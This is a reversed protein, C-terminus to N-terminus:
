FLEVVWIAMKLYYNMDIDDSNNSNIFPKLGNQQHINQINISGHGCSVDGNEVDRGIQKFSISETCQSLYHINIFGNGSSM